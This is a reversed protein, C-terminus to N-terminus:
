TGRARRAVSWAGACSLSVLPTIVLAQGDAVTSTTLSFPYSLLRPLSHCHLALCHLLVHVVAIASSFLNADAPSTGGPLM